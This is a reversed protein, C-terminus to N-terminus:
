EWELSSHTWKKEFPSNNNIATVIPELFSRIFIITNGLSLDTNARKTKIFGNWRGKRYIDDAFGDEFAVIRELTTKRHGFTEIIAQKLEMGSFDFRHAMTYIDYFDKYRSNVVGLSVIAEFKEAIISELSYANLVPPEDDLITPYEMQQKGPYIVDNYGIDINIPIRTRDLYAVASVNVGHYEKFETINNANLSSIDFRIADDCEVSLIDTFVKKMYEAENSISTGLLDIDTTTRAYQQNFLGYLLCGGKLVFKDKYPSISLRYLVRELVYLIFMDQVNRKEKNARYKIQAKVSTATKM